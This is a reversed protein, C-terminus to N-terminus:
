ADVNWIKMCDIPLSGLRGLFKVTSDNRKSGNQGASSAMAFSEPTEKTGQATVHLNKRLAKLRRLTKQNVKRHKLNSQLQELFRQTPKSLEEAVRDRIMIHSSPLKKILLSRLKANEDRLSAAAHKLDTTFDKRRKRSAQAHLRNREKRVASSEDQDISNCSSAVSQAVTAKTGIRVYPAGSTPVTGPSFWHKEPDQSVAVDRSGHVLLPGPVATSQCAATAIAFFTPPLPAENELPFVSSANSVPSIAGMTPAQTVQSVTAPISM